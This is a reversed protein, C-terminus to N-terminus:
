KKKPSGKMLISWDFKKDPNKAIWEQKEKKLQADLELYAKGHKMKGSKALERMVDRHRTKKKTKAEGEAYHEVYDRKPM